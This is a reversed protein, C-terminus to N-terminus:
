PQLQRLQESTIVPWNSDIQAKMDQYRDRRKWFKTKWVRFRHKSATDTVAPVEPKRSRRVEPLAVVEEPDDVMHLMQHAAHRVRRHELRREDRSPRSDDYGPIQNRNKRSRKAM